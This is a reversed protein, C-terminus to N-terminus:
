GVWFLSLAAVIMSTAGTSYAVTRWPQIALAYAVTHAIRAVVFVWALTVLLESPLDSYIAALFLVFLGIPINAVDNNCIRLWRNVRNHSETNSPLVEVHGTPVRFVRNFFNMVGEDERNPSEMSHGRVYTTITGCLWMKISLIATAYLVATTPDDPSM